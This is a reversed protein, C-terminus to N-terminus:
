GTPGISSEAAAMPKAVGPVGMDGAIDVADFDVSSNRDEAFSLPLSLVVPAAKAAIALSVRPDRQLNKVKVNATSSAIWFTEGILLFWAPTTHTFRGAALNHAM